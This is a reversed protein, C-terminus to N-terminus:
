KFYAVEQNLTSNANNQNNELTAMKRHYQAKELANNMAKKHERANAKAHSQEALGQPGFYFSHNEYEELIAQNHELRAQEEKAQAEYYKVLTAHDKSDIGEVESAHTSKITLLGLFAFTIIIASILNVTKM